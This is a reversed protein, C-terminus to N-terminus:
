AREESAFWAQRAAMPWDEVVLELEGHDFPAGAPATRPVLVERQDRRALTLARHHCFPNNGPKGLTCHATWNCGALCRV